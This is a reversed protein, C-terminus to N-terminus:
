APMEKPTVGAAVKPTGTAARSSDPIPLRLIPEATGTNLQQRVADDMIHQVVDSFGTMEQVSIREDDLLRRTYAQDAQHLRRLYALFVMKVRLLHDVSERVQRRPNSILVGYVVGLVGVGGSLGVGAWTSLDGSSFLAFGASGAVLLVGLFFVVADMVVALHFGNQAERVSAEFLERVKEETKELIEGYQKMSDTRARLKEYAVAGGLESLLVRAVDQQAATGSGMLAALEEAAAERNLWRLARGYCDMGDAAARKSAAEVVRLVLVKLGLIKEAARAAERVVSPNDDALEEILLPAASEVKLNGLGIVAGARMSDKWPASRMKVICASLAQAAMTAQNWGAPIQGLAMIADYTVDSNYPADTIKCISAVTAPLPVTRLARLVFWQTEPDELKARIKRLAKNDGLSGLYATALMSLKLDHQDDAVSKAAAAAQSNKGSILGELTWYRAWDNPEHDKDLHEIAVKTAEADGSSIKGLVGLLWARTDAIDRDDQEDEKGARYDDAIAKILLMRLTPLDIVQHPNAILEVASYRDARRESTLSRFILPAISNGSHPSGSEM